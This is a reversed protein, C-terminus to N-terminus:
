CSLMYDFCMAYISNSIVTSVKPLAMSLTPSLVDVLLFRLFLLIYQLQFLPLTVPFYMVLPYQWQKRWVWPYYCIYIIYAKLFVLFCFYADFM